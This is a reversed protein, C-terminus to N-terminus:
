KKILKKVTKNITISSIIQCYKGYKNYKEKIVKNSNLYNKCFFYGLYYKLYKKFRINSRIQKKKRKKMAMPEMINVM